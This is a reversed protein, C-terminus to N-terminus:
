CTRTICHLEYCTTNMCHLEDCTSKTRHIENRTANPNHPEYRILCSKTHLIHYPIEIVSSMILIKMVKTAGGIISNDTYDKAEVVLLNSKKYFGQTTLKLPIYLPSRIFLKLALPSHKFIWLLCTVDPTIHLHAPRMGDKKEQYENNTFRVWKIFDYYFKHSLWLFRERTMIM